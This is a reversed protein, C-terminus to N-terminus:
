IDLVEKLNVKRKTADAFSKCLNRSRRTNSSKSKFCDIQSKKEKEFAHFCNKKITAYFNINKTEIRETIFTDLCLQGIKQAELLDYPVEYCPVLRSSLCFISSTETFPNTWSNILECCKKVAKEDFGIRKLSLDKTTSDGTELNLNKRLDAILTATNHSSLIRRQM